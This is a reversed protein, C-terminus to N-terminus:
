QVNGGKQERYYRREKRSAPRATIPYYVGEDESYLVVAIMRGTKTPGIVIIRGKYSQLAVLNGQCVEEVEHPTVEHRAIHAVNWEDWILRRVYTMQLANYQLTNRIALLQVPEASGGRIPGSVGRETDARSPEQCAVCFYLSTLGYCIMLVPQGVV